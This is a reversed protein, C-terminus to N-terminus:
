AALKLQAVRAALKDLLDALDDGTFNWDIPTATENYHHEFQNLTRALDEFDNPKLV